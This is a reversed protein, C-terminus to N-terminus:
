VGRSVFPPRPRCRTTLRPKLRGYRQTEPEFSVAGPPSSNVTGYRPFVRRGLHYTVAVSAASYGLDVIQRAIADPKNLVLEEPYLWLQTDM